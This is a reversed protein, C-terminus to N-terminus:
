PFHRSVNSLRPTLTLTVIMNGVEIAAHHSIVFLIVSGNNLDAQICLEVCYVGSRGFDADGKSGTASLFIEVVGDGFIV